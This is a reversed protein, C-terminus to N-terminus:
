KWDGHFRIYSQKQPSCLKITAECASWYDSIALPGIVLKRKKKGPFGACGQMEFTYYDLQLLLTGIVEKCILCTIFM